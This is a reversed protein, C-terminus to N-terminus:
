RNRQTPRSAGSPVVLVPCFAEHLLRDSTTGLGLRGSPGARGSGVVLMRVKWQTMRRLLASPALRGPRWRPPMDPAVCGARGSRTTTAPPPIAPRSVITALPGSGRTTPEPETVPQELAIRDESV